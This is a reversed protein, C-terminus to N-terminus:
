STVDWLLKVVVDLLNMYRDREAEALAVAGYTRNIIKKKSHLKIQLETIETRQEDLADQLESNDAALNENKIVMEELSENATILDHCLEDIRKDRDAVAAESRFLESKYGMIETSLNQLADVLDQNEPREWFNAKKHM